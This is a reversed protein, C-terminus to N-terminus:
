AAQSRNRALWVDVRGVIDDIAPLQMGVQRAVRQVLRDVREINRAGTALARAASSPRTLGLAAHAYKEFPVLDEDRAGLAKCM